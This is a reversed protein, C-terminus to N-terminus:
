QIKFDPDNPYKKAIEKMKAIKEDPIAGNAKLIDAEIKLNDFEAKDKKKQNEEARRNEAEKAKQEAEKAMKEVAKAKLAEEKEKKEIERQSILAQERIANEEQLRKEEAVKRKNEEQLRLADEREKNEIEIQKQKRDYSIKWAIGGCVLLSFVVVMIFLIRNKPKLKPAQEALENIIGRENPTYDPTDVYSLWPLVTNGIKVIDSTQLYYEGTIREGNVFTGNASNLDVVSYNGYDNQVIQLHIRSVKYDDIVVDNEQSRGITIVRM